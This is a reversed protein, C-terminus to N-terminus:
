EAAEKAKKSTTGIYTTFVNRRYPRVNRTMNIKAPSNVATIHYKSTLCPLQAGQVYSTYWVRFQVAKVSKHFGWSSSVNKQYSARKQIHSFVNQTRLFLVLYIYTYWTDTNRVWWLVRKGQSVHSLAASCIYTKTTKNKDKKIHSKSVDATLEVLSTSSVWSQFSCSM